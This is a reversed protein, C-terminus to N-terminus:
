PAKALIAGPKHNERLLLDGSPVVGAVARLLGAAYGQLPGFIPFLKSGTEIYEFQKDSYLDSLVELVDGWEAKPQFHSGLGLAMAEDRAQVLRHGIKNKIHDLPVRCHLLYAKFGLEIAHGILYNVTIPAIAEHGPMDGIADDTAIAAAYFEIAYRLTGLPTTRDPDLHPRAQRAKDM